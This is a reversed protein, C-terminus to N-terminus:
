IILSGIAFKLTLIALYVSMIRIFLKFRAIRVTKRVIILTILDLKSSFTKKKLPPFLSGHMELKIYV